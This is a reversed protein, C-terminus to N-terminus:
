YQDRIRHIVADYNLFAKRCWWMPESRFICLKSENTAGVEKIEVTKM